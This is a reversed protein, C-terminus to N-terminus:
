ACGVCRRFSLVDATRFQLEVRRLAGFFRERLVRYALCGFSFLTFVFQGAVAPRTALMWQVKGTHAGVLGFVAQPICLCFALVLAFQGLEAIM